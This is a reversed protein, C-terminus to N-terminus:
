GGLWRRREDGGEGGSGMWVWRLLGVGLETEEVDEGGGVARARGGSFAVCGGVEEDDEAAAAVCGLHEGEEATEIGGAVGVSAIDDAAFVVEAGSSGFIELEGQIALPDGLFCPLSVADVGYRSGSSDM